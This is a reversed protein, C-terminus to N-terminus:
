AGGSKKKRGDKKKEGGRSGDHLGVSGPRVGSNAANAVLQSIVDITQHNANPGNGNQAQKPNPSRQQAQQTYNSYM